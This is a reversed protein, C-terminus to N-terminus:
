ASTVASRARARRAEARAAACGAARREDEGGGDSQQSRHQEEDACESRVIVALAVRLTGSSQCPGTEDEACACRTAAPRRGGSRADQLRRRERGRGEGADHLLDATPVIREAGARDEGHRGAVEVVDLREAEQAARRRGPRSRGRGAARPSGAPAARRCPSASAAARRWAASTGTLPTARTVAGSTRKWGSLGSSPGAGAWGGALMAIM